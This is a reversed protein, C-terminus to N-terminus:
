RRIYKAITENFKAVDAPPTTAYKAMIGAVENGPTPPVVVGWRLKAMRQFGRLKNIKIVADRLFKVRDEPIGPPGYLLRGGVLPLYIDLLKQDEGSPKILELITPTDPYFASREKGLCLLPPKLFGKDVEAKVSGMSFVTGDIEGKGAALGIEASSPYGPIVAGGELGFLHIVLSAGMQPKGGSAAIKLGKVKQLDAMSKYPLKPSIAFAESEYGYLGMYGFKGIDFKMGPDSALWKAIMSGITYVGLTLGDPKAKYVANAGRVGGGGAMNKVRVTGGTVDPWFAALVRAAFDTGGGAKYGVIITLTNDKYFDEATESAAPTSAPLLVLVIVLAMVLLAGRKLLKISKM